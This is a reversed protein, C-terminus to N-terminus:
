YALIGKIRCVANVNPVLLDMRAIARLKSQDSNFLRSGDLEIRVDQRIVAVIQDAQYM